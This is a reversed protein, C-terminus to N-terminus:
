SASIKDEGKHSLKNIREALMETYVTELESAHRTITPPNSWYCDYANRGLRAVLTDDSLQKLKEQLDNVDGGRFILGTKGNAVFEAAACNDSVLVPVGLGAAEQVVLGQTEYWIPPFVLARANQLHAQVQHPNQWGTIQARPCIAAIEDRMEGDGVFRVDAGLFAAAKALHQPAKGTTFRGVFTFHRNAAVNVAPQKPFDIPNPNGVRHIHIGSPLFPRLINESLRSVVIAHRLSSPFAGCRRQVHQRIVRWLKHGYNRRDCQRFTCAMSLPTRHCIQEAPYDYFAGNPCACFYDHFTVISAIGRKDLRPFVSATLAKTWGHIHVVTERPDANALLQDLARAAKANWLGRWLARIRNSDGLIDKQGLCQVTINPHNLLKTDVPGVPAFFTVRHGRAALGRAGALAVQDAGGQIFSFDNVIIIHM